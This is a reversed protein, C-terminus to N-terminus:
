RRIRHRGFGRERATLGGWIGFEENNEISYELCEQRVACSQCVSKAARVMMVMGKKTGIDSFFHEVDKGKCEAKSSWDMVGGIRKTQQLSTM